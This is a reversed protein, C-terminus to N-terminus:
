NANVKDVPQFIKLKRGLETRFNTELLREPTKKKMM